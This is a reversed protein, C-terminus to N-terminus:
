SKRVGSRLFQPLVADLSDLDKTAILTNEKTLFLQLSFWTMGVSHYFPCFREPTINHPCLAKMFAKCEVYSGYNALFSCNTSKRITRHVVFGLAPIKNDFCGRLEDNQGREITMDLIAKGALRPIEHFFVHGPIAQKLQMVIPPMMESIPHLQNPANPTYFGFGTMPAYGLQSVKKALQEIRERGGSPYPGFCWVRRERPGVKKAILVEMFEIAIDLLAKYAQPLLAPLRDRLRDVLSQVEDGDM